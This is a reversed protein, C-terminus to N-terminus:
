VESHTFHIMAGPAPTTSWSLTFSGGATPIGSTGLKYCAIPISTGDVETTTSVRYYVIAYNITQGVALAAWVVDSTSDFRLSGDPTTPAALARENVNANLAARAYGAASCETGAAVVATITAHAYSPTYTQMLLVMLNGVNQTLLDITGDLVIKKGTYYTLTGAM